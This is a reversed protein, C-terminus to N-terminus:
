KENELYERFKKLAAKADAESACDIVSAIIDKIQLLGSKRERAHEWMSKGETVILVACMVASVYPLYTKGLGIMVLLAVVDILAAIVMNRWYEGIKALTVRMKHSIVSKHLKKQTYIRDWLDLFIAAIVLAWFAATVGFHILVQSTVENWNITM